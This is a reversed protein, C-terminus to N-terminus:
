ATSALALLRGRALSRYRRRLPSASKTVATPGSLASPDESALASSRQPTPPGLGAVGLMFGTEIRGTPDTRYTPADGAYAYPQGTTALAPGVRTFQGLTPNYDRARMDDLGSGPLAYSAAYGIPSAPAGTTSPTGYASYATSTVQTGSPSVLGTLSGLWDSVAYDTGTATTMSAIAGVEGDQGVLIAKHHDGSWAL